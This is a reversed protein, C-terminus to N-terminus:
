HLPGALEGFAVDHARETVIPAVAILVMGEAAVAVGSAVIQWTLSSRRQDQALEASAGFRGRGDLSGEFLHCAELHTHAFLREQDIGLVFLLGGQATLRQRQDCKERAALTHALTEIGQNATQSRREQRQLSFFTIKMWRPVQFAVLGMG